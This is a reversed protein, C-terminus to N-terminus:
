TNTPQYDGIWRVYALRGRVARLLRGDDVWLECGLSEALAVYQADFATISHRETLELARRYIQLGGLLEIPLALFDDFIATAASLTLGERRMRGRIVNAVEAVLLHPATIRDGSTRADAFLATAKDSLDEEFLLKLVVSADVTLPSM